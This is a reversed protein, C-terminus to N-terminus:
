FKFVIFIFGTPAQITRQLYGKIFTKFPIEKLYFLMCNNHPAKIVTTKGSELGFM